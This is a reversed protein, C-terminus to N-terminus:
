IEFTVDTTEGHVTGSVMLVGNHLMDFTVIVEDGAKTGQPLEVVFRGISSLGDPDLSVIEHDSVDTSYIDGAASPGHRDQVYYTHTVRAPLVDKSYIHIHAKPTGDAAICGFALGRQARCNLALDTVRDAAIIPIYKRALIALGEGVLTQSDADIVQKHVIRESIYKRFYRGKSTGGAFVIVDVNEFKELGLAELNGVDDDTVSKLARKLMEEISDLIPQIKSAYEKFTMSYEVIKGDYGPIMIASVLDKEDMLSEKVLRTTEMVAAMVAPDERLTDVSVQLAISSQEIIRDAIPTDFDNGAVGVGDLSRTSINVIGKEDVSPVVIASDTTGAGSDVIMVNKGHIDPNKEYAATIAAVPESFMLRPDLNVGRDNAARCMKEIIEPTWTAPYSQTLIIQEKKLGYRECTKTVVSLDVDAMLEIADREKGRLNLTGGTTAMPKFSYAMNAPDANGRDIAEQGIYTTGDAGYYINNPFMGTRDICTNKAIKDGVLISSVCTSTGNDITIFRSREDLIRRALESIIGIKPGAKAAGKVNDDVNTMGSKSDDTAANTGTVAKQADEKQEDMVIEATKGKIDNM